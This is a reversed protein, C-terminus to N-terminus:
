KPFIHLGGLDLTLPGLEHVLWGVCSMGDHIAAISPLTMGIERRLNECWRMIIAAPSRLGIGM